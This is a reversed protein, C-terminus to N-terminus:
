LTIIMKRQLNPRFFIIITRVNTQPTNPIALANETFTMIYVTNLVIIAIGTVPRHSLVEASHSYNLCDKSYYKSTNVVVLLSLATYSFRTGMGPSAVRFRSWKLQLEILVFEGYDHM